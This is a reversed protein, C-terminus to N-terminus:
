VLTSSLHDHFVDSSVHSLWQEALKREHMRAQKREAHGNDRRAQNQQVVHQGDPVRCERMHKPQQAFKPCSRFDSVRNQGTGGSWEPERVRKGEELYVTTDEEVGEGWRGAVADAAQRHPGAEPEPQPKLVVRLSRDRSSCQLSVHARSEGWQHAPPPTVSRNVRDPPVSGTCRAALECAHPGSAESGSCTVSCSPPGLDGPPARVEAELASSALWSDRLLTRTQEDMFDHHEDMFDHDMFDHHQRDVATDDRAKGELSVAPATNNEVAPREQAHRLQMCVRKAQLKSM